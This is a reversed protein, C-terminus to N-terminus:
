PMWGPHVAAGASRKEAPAATFSGTLGEPRCCHEPPTGRVSRLLM